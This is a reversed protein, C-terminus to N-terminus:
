RTSASSVTTSAVASVRSPRSRTVVDQLKNRTYAARLLAFRFIWRTLVANMPSLQMRRVEADIGCRQALRLYLRQRRAAACPPDRRARVPEPFNEFAARCGVFDFSESAFPLAAVDGHRFTVTVGAQRAHETAIRV